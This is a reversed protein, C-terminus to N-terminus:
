AVHSRSVRLPHQSSPDPSPQIQEERLFFVHVAGPFGVRM